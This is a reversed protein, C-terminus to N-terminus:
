LGRKAGSNLNERHAARAEIAKSCRLCTLQARVWVPLLAVSRESEMSRGANAMRKLKILLQKVGIMTELMVEVM